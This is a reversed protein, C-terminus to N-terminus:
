LIFRGSWAGYVLISIGISARVYEIIACKTEKTM